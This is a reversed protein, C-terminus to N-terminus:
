VFVHMELYQQFFMVFKCITESPRPQWRGKSHDIKKHRYLIVRQLLNKSGHSRAAHHSASEELDGPPALNGCPDDEVECERVGKPVGYSERFSMLHNFSSM